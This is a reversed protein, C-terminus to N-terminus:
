LLQPCHTENQWFVCGECFIQTNEPNQKKGAARFPQPPAKALGGYLFMRLQHM